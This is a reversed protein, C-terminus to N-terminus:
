ARLAISTFRPAPVLHKSRGKNGRRPDVRLAFGFYFRGSSARRANGRRPEVRLSRLSRLASGFLFAACKAAM